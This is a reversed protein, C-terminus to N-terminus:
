TKFGGAMNFIPMFISLVIIMVFIGMFVIAIPEFLRTMRSIFTDVREEYYCAIHGTMKPLQGVEEGVLILQITLPPFVGTEAMPQARTQGEKVADRVKKIAQGYVKNTATNELIGLGSLLPVGSELLTSLGRGFEALQVYTFLTRFIPLRLLLRDRVWQGQETVILRRLLYGTGFLGFIVVVVYRRGIDSVGIVIRTLLPLEIHMSAFVGTFKPIVWYVFVAMVLLSAVLLFAPYTMATKAANQLHEAAEFHRALQRLSQALHGSTEGTEVLNLWLNSFVLPHKALADRLTRGAEVDRRTEDLAILLRRSEVQASAVELSKLLPVGAEVLTALQQCLLVHDETKVGTHMKSSRFRRM